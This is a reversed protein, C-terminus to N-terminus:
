AAKNLGGPCLIGVMGTARGEKSRLEVDVDVDVDIGVEVEDGVENGVKVRSKPGGLSKPMTVVESGKARLCSKGLYEKGQGSGEFRDEERGRGSKTSALAGM